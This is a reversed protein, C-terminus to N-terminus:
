KKMAETYTSVITPKLQLPTYLRLVKTQVARGMSELRTESEYLMKLAPYWQGQQCLMGDVSQEISNRMVASDSACLPTAVIGSEFFKLDSKCDNFKGTDLPALSVDVSAMKQQLTLYDTFPHQVIRGTLMLPTFFKPLQLEGVVLLQTHSNEQLFSFLEPAVVSFDIRHSPTGSFYGIVFPKERGVRKKEAVLKASFELQEHNLINPLVWVSKGFKEKLLRALFINTTTYGDALRAAAEIRSSNAFWFDYEIEERFADGITNELVKINPPDFIYDDIDYLVTVGNQKAEFVLEDLESTWKLRVLVLVSVSPLYARTQEVEASYFWTSSWEEDLELAQALNYCRYRFITFDPSSYLYAVTKKGEATAELLKMIRADLPPMQQMDHPQTSDTLYYM